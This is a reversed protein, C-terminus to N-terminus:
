SVSKIPYTDKPFRIMFFNRKIVMDKTPNNKGIVSEESKDDNDYSDQMDDSDSEEFPSNFISPEAYGVGFLIGESKRIKYIGEDIKALPIM